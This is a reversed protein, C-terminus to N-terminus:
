PLPLPVGINNPNPYANKGMSAKANRLNGVSVSEHSLHHEHVHHASSECAQIEERKKAAHRFLAIVRGELRWRWGLLFANQVIDSAGEAMAQAGKMSTKAKQGNRNEKCSKDYAPTLFADIIDVGREKSGNDQGAHEIKSKWDVEINLLPMSRTKDEM